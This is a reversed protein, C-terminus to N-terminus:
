TPIMTRVLPLFYSWVAIIPQFLYLYLINDSFLLPQIRYELTPVSFLIILNKVIDVTDPPLCTSDACAAEPSLSPRLGSRQAM